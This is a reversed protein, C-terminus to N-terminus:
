AQNPRKRLELWEAKDGNTADEEPDVMATGHGAGGLVLRRRSRGTVGKRLKGFAGLGSTVRVGATPTVGTGARGETVILLPLPDM